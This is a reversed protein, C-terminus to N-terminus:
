FEKAKIVSSADKKAKARFLHRKTLFIHRLQLTSQAFLAFLFCGSRTPRTGKEAVRNSKQSARNSKQSAHTPIL